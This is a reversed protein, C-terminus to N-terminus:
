NQQIKKLQKSKEVIVLCDEFKKFYHNSNENNFLSAKDTTGLLHSNLYDTKRKLWETQRESNTATIKSSVVRNLFIETNFMEISKKSDYDNPVTFYNAFNRQAIELQIENYTFTQHTINEKHKSLFFNLVDVSINKKTKKGNTKKIINLNDYVSHMDQLSLSRIFDMTYGNVNANVLKEVMLETESQVTKKSQVTKM